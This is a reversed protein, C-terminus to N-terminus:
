HIVAGSTACAITVSQTTSFTTGSAPTFVPDSVAAVAKTYTASSVTSNNMGSKVAIAKVTSTSSVTIDSSYLASSATPASGDTTYHIEAGSTPCSLSVALTSSFTTGGAPSFVPAEAQEVASKTYVASVVSSSTMGSKVAIMRVTTTATLTIPSSYLASSSTPTSGDISYHIEADATACSMSVVLSSTFTTGSAVSFQPAVVSDASSSKAINVTYVRITAGDAARVKVPVMNNEATLQIKVSPQGSEAYSGNISLSAASDSTEATIRASATGSAATVTYSLTEPDFSPSLDGATVTLSSLAADSSNLGLLASADCALTLSLLAALLLPLVRLTKM